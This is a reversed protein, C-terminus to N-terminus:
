WTLWALPYMQDKHGDDWRIKARPGMEDDDIEMDPSCVIGTDGDVNTVRAGVRLYRLEDCKPATYAM